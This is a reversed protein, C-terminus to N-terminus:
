NIPSVSTKVFEETVIEASGVNTKMEVSRTKFPQSKHLMRKIPTGATKKIENGILKGLKSKPIPPDILVTTAENRVGVKRREETRNNDSM